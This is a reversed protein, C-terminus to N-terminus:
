NVLSDALEELREAIPFDTAVEDLDNGARRPMRLLVPLFSEPFKPAKPHCISVDLARSPSRM